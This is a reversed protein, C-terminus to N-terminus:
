PLLDELDFAYFRERLSAKDELSRAVVGCRAEGQWKARASALADLAEQRRMDRWKAELLVPPSSAVVIDIESGRQWWRGSRGAPLVGERQLRPVSQRALEEFAKPLFSREFDDRVDGFSFNGLEIFDRNPYVYRAWFKFYQDAIVYLSREKGLVTADRRVVGMGELYSLEDVRDTFV